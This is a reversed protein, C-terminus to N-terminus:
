LTHQMETAWRLAELYSKVLLARPCGLTQVTEWDGREYALVGRLTAGLLGEHALLAAVIDEALPLTPLIAAMPRDLFADLVSLLDVTFFTASNRQQMRTAVQEAMAYYGAPLLGTNLAKMIEAIWLTHFAHFTGADVQTWDHIPM